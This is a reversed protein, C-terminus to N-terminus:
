NLVGDVTHDENVVLAAALEGFPVEAPTELQFPHATIPNTPQNSKPRPPAPPGCPFYMLLFAVPIALLLSHFLCSLLTGSAAALLVSFCACVWLSYSTGRPM